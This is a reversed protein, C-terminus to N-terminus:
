ECRSDCTVDQVLNVMTVPIRSLIVRVLKTVSRKDKYCTAVAPTSVGDPCHHLRTTIATHLYLCQELNKLTSRFDNLILNYQVGVWRHVVFVVFATTNKACANQLMLQCTVHTVAEGFVSM